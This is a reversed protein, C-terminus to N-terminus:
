SGHQVEQPPEPLLPMVPYDRLTVGGCTIHWSGGDVRVYWGRHGTLEAHDYQWGAAKWAQRWGFGLAMIFGYAPSVVPPSAFGPWGAQALRQWHSLRLMNARSSGRYALAKLWPRAVERAQVDCGIACLHSVHLLLRSLYHEASTPCTEFLESCLTAAETWESRRWHDRLPIDLLDIDHM